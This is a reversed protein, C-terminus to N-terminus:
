PEVVLETEVSVADFWAVQEAMPTFQVEYTGPAISADLRIPLGGDTMPGFWGDSGSYSGDWNPFLPSARSWSISASDKSSRCAAM